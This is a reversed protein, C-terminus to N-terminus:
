PPLSPVLRPFPTGGGKSLELHEAEKHQQWWALMANFDGGFKRQRLAETLSGCAIANGIDVLDITAAYDCVWFAKELEDLRLEVDITAQARSPASGGAVGTVILAATAVKMAPSCRVRIARCLRTSAERAKRHTTNM